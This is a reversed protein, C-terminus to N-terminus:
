NIVVNCQQTSVSDAALRLVCSGHKTILEATVFVKVFMM